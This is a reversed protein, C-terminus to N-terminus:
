ASGELGSRLRRLGRHVRQRVVAESCALEGAIEEYPQEDVVRALLASRQEAPLDGLLVALRPEDVRSALEDVRALDADELAIPEHRLRERASAEVRGRRLSDRLKHAAIGFLWGTASGRQPDFTACGVVVAAFTEATLDFAVERRGTRRLHFGTVAPLHRLYFAEFAREDGAAAAALLTTDDRESVRHM